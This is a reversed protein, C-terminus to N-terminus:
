VSQTLGSRGFLNLNEGPDTRVQSCLEGFGFDIIFAVLLLPSLFSLIQQVLQFHLTSLGRSDTIQNISKSGLVIFNPSELFLNSRLFTIFYDLIFHDVLM